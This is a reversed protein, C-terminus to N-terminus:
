SKFYDNLVGDTWLYQEITSFPVSKKGTELASLFVTAPVLYADDVSLFRIVVFYPIHLNTARRMGQIQGKRFTSAINISTKRSTTEKSEIYFMNSMNKAKAINSDLGVIFDSPRTDEFKGTDYKDPLRQIDVKLGYAKRLQQTIFFETSKGTVAM